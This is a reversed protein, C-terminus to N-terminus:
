CLCVRLYFSYIIPFLKFNDNDFFVFFTVVAFDNNWALRHKTRHGVLAMARRTLFRRRWFAGRVVGSCQVSMTVFSDTCARWMVAAKRWAAWVIWAVVPM